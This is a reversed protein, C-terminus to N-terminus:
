FTALSENVFKLDYGVQNLPKCALQGGGGNKEGKTHLICHSHILSKGGGLEALGALLEFHILDVQSYKVM